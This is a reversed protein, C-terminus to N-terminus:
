KKLTMYKLSLFRQKGNGYDAVRSNDKWAKINSAWQKKTDTEKMLVKEIGRKLIEQFGVEQIGYGGTVRMFHKISHVNRIFMDGDTYGCLVLKNKAPDKALLKRM